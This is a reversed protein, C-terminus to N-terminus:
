ADDIVRGALYYGSTLLQEISPRITPLLGKRKALVLLGLIGIVPLGLRHAVRRGARDDMLLGAGRGLAIQITTAEGADLGWNRDNTMDDPVLVLWGNDLAAAIAPVEPRDPRALCEALVTQTVLAQRFLEPLLSLGFIRALAILPGADAVIIEVSAPLSKSWSALPRGLPLYGWGPM